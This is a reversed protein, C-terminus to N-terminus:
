RSATETLAGGRIRTEAKASEPLEIKYAVKGVRRLVWFPGYFRPSLKLARRHAVTTQRYPQLRLYVGQGVKLEWKTRKLDAYKKMRQQAQKINHQLLQLIQERNRLVEDVAEVRTTGPVYSLLRPPPVGYVAEYPTMKIASHWSTNYWYEAWPLWHNWEKPNDQAFCRLYNELSKNVMETQGDTQPHYSTSLKLSTGQLRFLERWFLSTFTPDRDSVISQPMGHPKFVNQIFLQAVKAATYPHSLATLHSYKSLRDVVVLVVSHRQSLPLGEVFDISIDTWVRTPIPLPQLLGAPRTNEHKNQQCVDCEKIFRKIEKRMGKWYFDQKARQITKDYGSHGAMPDSHVFKLVQAKIEPSQGLIIKQKYLLVGDRTSYKRIDLENRLRRGYHSYTKMVRTNSSSTRSGNQQLFLYYSSPVMKKGDRRGQYPM